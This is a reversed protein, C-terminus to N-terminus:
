KHRRFKAIRKVFMRNINNFTIRMRRLKDARQEDTLVVPPKGRRPPLMAQVLPDAGLYPMVPKRFCQHVNDWIYNLAYTANKISSRKIM